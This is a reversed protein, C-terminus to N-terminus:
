PMADAHRRARLRRVRLYYAMLAISVAAAVAFWMSWRLGALAAYGHQSQFPKPPDAFYPPVDNAPGATELGRSIYREVMATGAAAVAATVALVASARLVATVVLVVTAVLLLLSWSYRASGVASAVLDSSHLHWLNAKHTVAPNPGAGGDTWRAWPLFSCVLMPAVTFTGWVVPIRRGRLDM